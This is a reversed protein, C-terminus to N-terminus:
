PPIMLSNVFCHFSLLPWSTWGAWVWDGLTDVACRLLLSFRDGGVVSVRAAPVHRQGEHM